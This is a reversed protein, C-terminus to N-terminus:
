AFVKAYNPFCIFIKGDAKDALKRKVKSMLVRLRHLPLDQIM